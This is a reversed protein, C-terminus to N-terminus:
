GQKEKTKKIEQLAWVFKSIIQNLSSVFGAMPSALGRVVMGLLVERSPLKSMSDIDRDTLKREKLFGGKVKIFENGKSFESVIKCIKVVDSNIFIIGTEKELLDDVNFIGQTEFSKQFLTNKTVFVSAGAETLSNRFVNFDFAKIKSFNMFICANSNEIRSKLESIVKERVLLGIKKM